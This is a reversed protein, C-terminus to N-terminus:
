KAGEACRANAKTFAADLYSWFHSHFWFKVFPVRLWLPFGSSWFRRWAWCVARRWRLSQVRNYQNFHGAHGYNCRGCAWCNDDSCSSRYCWDGSACSIPSIIRTFYSTNHNPGYSPLVPWGFPHEVSERLESIDVKNTPSTFRPRKNRVVRIGLRHRLMLGSLQSLLYSIPWATAQRFRFVISTPSYSGPYDLM